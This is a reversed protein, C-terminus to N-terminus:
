QRRFIDWKGLSLFSLLPPTHKVAPGWPGPRDDGGARGACQLAPIGVQLWPAAGLVRGAWEGEELQGEALACSLSPGAKSDGSGKLLPQAKSCVGGGRRPVVNECEAAKENGEERALLILGQSM